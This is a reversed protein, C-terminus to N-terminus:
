KIRVKINWPQELAGEARPLPHLLYALQPTHRAGLGLSARRSCVTLLSASWAVSECSSHWGLSPRIAGTSEALQPRFRSLNLTFLAPPKV